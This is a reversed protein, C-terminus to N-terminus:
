SGIGQFVKVLAVILLAIAAGYWLWGPIQILLTFLNFQQAYEGTNAGTDVGYQYLDNAGVVWFVALLVVIIALIAFGIKM